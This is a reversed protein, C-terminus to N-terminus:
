LTMNLKKPMQREKLYLEIGDFHPTYDDFYYGPNHVGGIFLFNEIEYNEHKILDAFVRKLDDLKLEEKVEKIKGDDDIFKTIYFNITLKGNKFTLEQNSKVKYERGKSYYQEIAFNVDDVSLSIRNDRIRLSPTYEKESEILLLKNYLDEVESLTNLKKIKNKFYVAEELTYFGFEKEEMDRNVVRLCFYPTSAKILRVDTYLNGSGFSIENDKFFLREESVQM